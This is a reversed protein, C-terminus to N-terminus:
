VLNPSLVNLSRRRPVPTPRPSRRSGRSANPGAACPEAILDNSSAQLAVAEDPELSQVGPATLSLVQVDMGTEDMDAIRREALDALREGIAGREHHELGPDRWPADLARWLALVDQTVFHEELGIIKM